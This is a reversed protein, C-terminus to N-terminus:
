LAGFIDDSDGFDDSLFDDATPTKSKNSSVFVQGSEAMSDGEEAVYFLNQPSGGTLALALPNADAPLQPLVLQDGGSFFFMRVDKPHTVALEQRIAEFLEDENSYPRCILPRGFSAVIMKVPYIVEAPTKAEDETTSAKSDSAKPKRVSKLGSLSKKKAAKKKAPKSSKPSNKSKKKAVKKKVAKKSNKSVAQGQSSPELSDETFIKLAPNSM